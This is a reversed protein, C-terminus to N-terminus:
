LNASEPNQMYAARLYFGCKFLLRVLFIFFQVCAAAKICSKVTIVSWFISNPTRNAELKDNSEACEHWCLCAHVQLHTRARTRTHTHTHTRARSHLHTHCCTPTHVSFNEPSRPVGFAPGKEHFFLPFTANNKIKNKKEFSLCQFFIFPFPECGTTFKHHHQSPHYNESDAVEHFISGHLTKHYKM